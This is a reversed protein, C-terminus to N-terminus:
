MSSHVSLGLDPNYFAFGSAHGLKQFAIVGTQYEDNHAYMITHETDIHNGCAETVSRITYEDLPNSRTQYAKRFKPWLARSNGILVGMANERGFSPLKDVGPLSNYCSIPFVHFLDYGSKALSKELNSLM